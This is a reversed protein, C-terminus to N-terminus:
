LYSGCTPWAGPGQRALIREAVRIQEERSATAPNGRGGYALWTSRSFQLGGYYGNGTDATWDGSAECRAVADWNHRPGAHATASLAWTLATIGPTLVLTRTPRRYEQQGIM